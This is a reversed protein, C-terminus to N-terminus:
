AKLMLKHTKPTLLDYFDMFHFSMSNECDM